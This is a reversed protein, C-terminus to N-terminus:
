HVDPGANGLPADAQLATWATAETTGPGSASPLGAGTRVAWIAARCASSAGHQGLSAANLSAPCRLPASPDRCCRSPSPSSPSSGCRGPCGCTATAQGAPDAHADRKAGPRWDPHPMPVHHSPHGHGQISCTWRATGTGVWLRQADADEYLAVEGNSDGIRPATRRITASRRSATATMGTWDTRPPSGSSVTAQGPGHQQGNGPLPRGRHHTAQFSCHAPHRSPQAQASPSSALICPLQSSSGPSAPCRCSAVLKCFSRAKAGKTGPVETRIRTQV